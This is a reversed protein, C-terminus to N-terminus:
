DCYCADKTNERIWVLYKNVRTYVGPSEPRACGDGWSVVGIEQYVNTENDFVHLPGGSDGQCADRGGEPAGACLMNDTIRGRYARNCDENSMVPVYVLDLFAADFKTRSITIPSSIYIQQQSGLVFYCDVKCTSRSAGFDVLTVRSRLAELRIIAEKRLLVLCTARQEQLTDSTQGGEQTLGWGTVVATYNTYSLDPEPLCVPWIGSNEDKEPESEDDDRDGSYDNSMGNPIPKKLANNFQIRRDLKLLAIDNDYNAPNYLPHRIIEAVKRDITNTENPSSRDHELFRVTILEKRFGATCHGATMVYYDNISSGGCYFSDRYLLLIMWVFENKKTEYGGVIRRTTYPVGCECYPCDESPKPTTTTKPRLINIIWDLIRSNQPDTSSIEISEPVETRSLTVLSCLM